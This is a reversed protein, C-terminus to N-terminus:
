VLKKYKTGDKIILGLREWEQWARSITGLGLGTKRSAERVTARGTLEFLRSLKRDASIAALTEKFNARVLAALLAEIRLLCELQPKDDDM